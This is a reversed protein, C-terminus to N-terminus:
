ECDQMDKSMSTLRIIEEEYKQKRKERLRKACSKCRCDFGDKVKVKRTFNEADRLLWRGCDSCLKFNEPFMLNECVERHKKATKAIAGLVNQRYLTSIYNVTYPHGFEEGLITSIQENSIHQRKLNLLQLQVKPLQALAVYSDYTNLLENFNSELPHVGETKLSERASLYVGDLLFLQVPNEFNFTYPSNRAPRWLLKTLEQLESDNFDKPEPFRDTRWLKQTLQSNAYKLGLPLVQIDSDWFLTPDEIHTNFTPTSLMPPAYSDKYIYQRQRLEVLYHKQQLYKYSNLHQAREHISLIELENFRSLLQARPPSTRKQHDLDYFTILLETEDILRWLQELEHLLEPSALKRATSRSFVERPAKYVPDEPRRLMSETFAPSELLADLSEVPEADWTGAATELQLGEQRGNLGNQRNKGWLIYKGMMELEDETPKFPLTNLYSNIFGTREDRWELQWNLNLRKCKAM